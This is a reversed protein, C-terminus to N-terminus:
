RYRYLYTIVSSSVVPAPLEVGVGGPTSFFALFKLDVGTLRYAKM